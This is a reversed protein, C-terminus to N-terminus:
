VKANLYREIQEKPIYNPVLFIDSYNCINCHCIHYKDDPWSYRDIFSFNQSECKKCKPM